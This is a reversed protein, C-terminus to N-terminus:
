NKVVAVWIEVLANEMDKVPEPYREFDCALTPNMKYGSTPLWDGYIFQFFKPLGALSGRYTFVAYDSESVEKGVMGEPIDEMRDVEVSSIYYYKPFADPEM